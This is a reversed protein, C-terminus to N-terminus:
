NKLLFRTTHGDYEDGAANRRGDGARAFLEAADSIINMMAPAPKKRFM